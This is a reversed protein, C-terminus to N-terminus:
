QFDYPKLPFDKYFQVFSAIQAMEFPVLRIVCFVNIAVVPFAFYRM